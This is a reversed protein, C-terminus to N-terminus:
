SSQSSVLFLTIDYRAGYHEFGLSVPALQIKPYLERMNTPIFALTTRNFILVGTELKVLVVGEIARYQLRM